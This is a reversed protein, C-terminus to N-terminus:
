TSRSPAPQQGKNKLNAARPSDCSKCTRQLIPLFTIRWPHALLLPFFTTWLEEFLNLHRFMTRTGTSLKDPFTQTAQTNNKITILVWLCPASLANLVKSISACKTLHHRILIFLVHLCHTSLAHHSTITSFWNFSNSSRNGQDHSPHPRPLPASRLPLVSPLSPFSPLFM